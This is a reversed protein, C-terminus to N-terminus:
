PVSGRYQMQFPEYSGTFTEGRGRSVWTSSLKIEGRYSGGPTLGYVEFYIFPRAAKEVIAAANLQLEVDRAPRFTGVSDAAVAISSVTPHEITFSPVRVKGRIVNVSRDDPWNLDKVVLRYDYEGPPVSLMTQLPFGDRTTDAVQRSFIFDTRRTKEAVLSDNQFLELGLSLSYKWGGDFMGRIRGAEVSAAAWFAVIEPSGGYFALYQYDFPFAGTAKLGGSEALENLAGAPVESLVPVTEQPAALLGGPAVAGLMGLVACVRHVPTGQRM